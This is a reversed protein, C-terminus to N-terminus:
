AAAPGPNDDDNAFAPVRLLSALPDINPKSRNVSEIRV